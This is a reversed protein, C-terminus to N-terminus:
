GKASSRIAVGAQGAVGRADADGQLEGCSAMRPLVRRRAPPKEEAGDPRAHVAIARRGAEDPADM